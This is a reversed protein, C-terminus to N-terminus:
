EDGEDGEQEGPEPLVTKRKQPASSSRRSVPTEAEGQEDEDREFPYFPHDKVPEYKMIREKSKIGRLARTDSENLQFDFINLNEKIHL